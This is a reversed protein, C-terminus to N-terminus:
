QSVTKKVNTIHQNAKKKKKIIQLTRLTKINPSQIPTPTNKQKQITCFMQLDVGKKMSNWM